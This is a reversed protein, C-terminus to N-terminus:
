CTLRGPSAQKHVLSQFGYEALRSLEDPQVARARLAAVVSPDSPRLPSQILDRRENEVWQHPRSSKAAVEM